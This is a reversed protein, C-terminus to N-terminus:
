RKRGLVRGIYGSLSTDNMEESLERSLELRIRESEELEKNKDSLQASLAKIEADMQAKLARYQEEYNKQMADRSASLADLERQLERVPRQEAIIGKLRKNEEAGAAVKQLLEDQRSRLGDAVAISEQLNKQTEALESQVTERASTMLELQRSTATRLKDAVQARESETDALERHKDIESATEQRIRTLETEHESRLAAIRDDRDQTLAAIATESAAQAAAIGDDRERNADAIATDREDNAAAVAEDRERQAREIGEVKEAEAKAIGEEKDKHAAAVAEDRQKKVQAISETKEANARAVVEDREQQAREIGEAKEAEAKAIGEEKDKLAEAIAEDREAEAKEIAARKENEANEIATQKEHEATEIAARKEQEAAEIAALKEAEAAAAAAAADQARSEAERTQAQAEDRASEAAIRLQKEEECRAEADLQAQTVEEVFVRRIEVDPLNPDDVQVEEIKKIFRPVLQRHHKWLEKTLERRDPDLISKFVAYNMIQNTYLQYLYEEDFQLTSEEVNISYGVEEYTELFQWLKYCVRYDRDKILLNTRQIPSRVQACGHMLECFPSNKLAMTMRRVRDIRMFVNMNDSDNEAFSQLNKITMEVKYDIQEYADDIHSSFALRSRKEDGTSWFIVDTRKDIFRVLRQILYYIFRNEYLDYTDEVSVNLIKIPSVEGDEASAIFQTNQSLHRVSESSIRKALSVPVVEENTKLMRRPNDIIKNISELAEEITTLWREDVIKRLIQNSQHIQNEGARIMTFLYRFYKDDEM